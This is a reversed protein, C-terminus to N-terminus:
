KISICLVGALMPVCHGKRLYNKANGYTLRTCIYPIIILCALFVVFFNSLGHLIFFRGRSRMTVAKM